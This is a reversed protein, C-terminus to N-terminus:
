QITFFINMDLESEYKKSELNDLPDILEGPFLERVQGSTDMLIVGHV